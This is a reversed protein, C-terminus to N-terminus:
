PASDALQIEHLLHGLCDGSRVRSIKRACAWLGATPALIRTPPSDPTEPNWITGILTEAFVEEGLECGPEFVGDHPAYIFHHQRAEYVRSLASGQWKPDLALLKMHALFRYLARECTTISGLSMTGGGGFEGSIYMVNRNAAAAGAVHGKPTGRQIWTVPCNIYKLAAEVTAAKHADEPLDAYTCPVYELSAGGSHFDFMVNSMPLLEDSIYQAIQRTPTDAPTSSFCRNLNGSDLPSLRTGNMAAPLNAVPLVILRGSIQGAEISKILRSLVIQGEYEDGHSGAM